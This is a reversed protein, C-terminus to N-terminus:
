EQMGSEIMDRQYALQDHLEELKQGAQEQTGPDESGMLLIVSIMFDTKDKLRIVVPNNAEAPTGQIFKALLANLFAVEPTSLPMQLVEISTTPIVAKSTDFAM